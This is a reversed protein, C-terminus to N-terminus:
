ALVAALHPALASYARRREDPAIPRSNFTRWLGRVDVEDECAFFVFAGLPPKLYVRMDASAVAVVGRVPISRLGARQLARKVREVNRLAQRTPNARAPEWDDYPRRRYFWDHGRALFEGRWAKVEFVIVGLPGLLVADIDGGAHNPAPPTVNRLLVYEDGLWRGLVAGLLNEGDRGKAWYAADEARETALELLEERRRRTERVSRRIRPSFFGALRALAGPRSPLADLLARTSAVNAVEQQRLYDSLWVTKM